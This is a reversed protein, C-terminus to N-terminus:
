AYLSSARNIEHSHVLNSYAIFSAKQEANKKKDGKGRGMEVGDILVHATYFTNRNETCRDVIFQIKRNYKQVYELVLGKYNEDRNELKELDLFALILKKSIYEYAFHYGKDLFLAGIFAELANGFIDKGQNKMVDINKDYTVFAPLHIKLALANLNQRNDIKSRMKSLFGESKGPYRKFLFASAVLSIVADGLFELRENSEDPSNGLSRHKFAQLFLNYDSPEFGFNRIFKERFEISQPNKERFLFKFIRL